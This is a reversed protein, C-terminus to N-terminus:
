FSYKSQRSLPECGYRVADISHNNRDPFSSVFEGQRNQDYEYTIFERYTNPCREKDIYIHARHQLWSIGYDVSDPGKKAGYVNLGLARMEAISKPEASDAVIRSQGAKPKIKETAKKNSMREGYVEDFIYLDEKRQDYYMAVFALPDIAFGYDLGFYRKDFGEIQKDSLRIDEVNDFVGGGSGTVEGLYEHRYLLENKDKLKEAEAIFQEGIWDRPVQMYNTLSVLRDNEGILIEKNVWNDRSKPPNYTTFCWYKDGGRMLSQNVSRFEEMGAFQALEEWWILGIYGFPAKISKIKIPDDVGLFMIKQKTPKYIIEPPNSRFTFLHAIGLKTLAWVIQPYVSSKISSGVKRLVVAHCNPNKLLLLPLEVSTFTSKASGRGGALWYYTYEHDQAKRHIHWFPPAILESLKVEAM